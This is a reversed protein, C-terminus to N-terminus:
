VLLVEAGICRVKSYDEGGKRERERDGDSESVKERGGSQITCM